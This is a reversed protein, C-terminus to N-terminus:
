SRLFQENNASNVKAHIKLVQYWVTMTVSFICTTDCRSVAMAPYRLKMRGQRIEILKAMNM